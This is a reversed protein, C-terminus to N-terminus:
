PSLSKYEGCLWRELHSVYWRSFRRDTVGGALATHVEDAGLDTVIRIAPAFTKVRGASRNSLGM